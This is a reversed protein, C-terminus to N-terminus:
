RHTGPGPTPQNNFFSRDLHSTNSGVYQIDLATGRWLERQLDLSWQDKRANPLDRTPSIIDPRANAGVLVRLRQTQFRCVVPESPGVHLDDRGGGAPQEDPVHVLEDPEPQLLDRLGCARRDERWSSVHRRPAARHGQLEGRPVQIGARPLRSLNPSPIITEFDSDLMSAVGEYTQVPTNLEYRLGLSLTLNRSAQWVDNIFFGNRWGGVHGQIQDTPPIVTRPLGLM